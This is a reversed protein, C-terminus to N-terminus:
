KAPPAAPATLDIFRSGDWWRVTRVEDIVPTAPPPPILKRGALAGVSADFADNVGIALPRLDADLTYIVEPRPLAETDHAPAVWVTIRSEEDVAIRIVPSTGGLARLRAPKQFKVFRLPLGPPCTRCWYRAEEAPASGAPRAADLMALSAGASENNRAGALVVRRGAVEGEWVATIHGASWYEASVLGDSEMKSMVSPFWPRHVSILWVNDGTGDDRSERPTFLIRNALFPASYPTDGFVITGARAHRWLLTGTASFCYFRYSDSRADAPKTCVTVERSGDGDIDRIRVPYDPSDAELAGAPRALSFPFTHRWLVAGGANMVSLTDVEWDWGAPQADAGDPGERGTLARWAVISGISLLLLLVALVLALPARTSRAGANGAAAGASAGAALPVDVAGEGGPGEDGGLDALRRAAQAEATAKWQELDDIYAHVLEARGMGFRRIPLAYEREWRQVTRVSRGFYSSIDKWGHLQPKTNPVPVPDDESM